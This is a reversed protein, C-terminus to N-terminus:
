QQREWPDVHKGLCEYWQGSAPFGIRGTKDIKAAIGAFEKGQAQCEQLSKYMPMHEEIHCGWTTGCIFLAYIMM